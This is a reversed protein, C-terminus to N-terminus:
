ARNINFKGTLSGSKDINNYTNIKVFVNIKSKTSSFVAEVRVIKVIGQM